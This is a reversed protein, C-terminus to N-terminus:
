EHDTEKPQLAANITALNDDYGGPFLGAAIRVVRAVDDRLRAVETKLEEVRLADEGWATTIHTLKAEAAPARAKWEDREAALAPVAERAWAIFRANALKEAPKRPAYQFGTATAVISGTADDSYIHFQRAEEPDHVWPGPTVGELMKAVAEPTLDQTM